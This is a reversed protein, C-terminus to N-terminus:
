LTKLFEINLNYVILAPAVAFSVMDSLSDLEAGFASQANILRAVRGDLSDFIMAILVAIASAVFRHNMAAIIAYFGLFLSTITFLNPLIYIGKRMRVRKEPKEKKNEERDQLDDHKNM